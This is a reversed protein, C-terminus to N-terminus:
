RLGAGDPQKAAGGEGEWTQLAQSQQRRDRRVKAFGLLGNLIFAFAGVLLAAELARRRARSPVPVHQM